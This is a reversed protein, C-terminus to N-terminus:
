KELLEAIELLKNQVTLPLKSFMEENKTKKKQIDQFEGLLEYLGLPIAEELPINLTDCIRKLTRGGPKQKGIELTGIYGTTVGVKEALESQTFKYERRKERILDGLKSM